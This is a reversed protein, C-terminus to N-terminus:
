IDHMIYSTPEFSVGKPIKRPSFTSAMLLLGWPRQPLYEVSAGVSTTGWYRQEELWQVMPDEVHESFLRSAARPYCTLQGLHAMYPCTNVRSMVDRVLLCLHNKTNGTRLDFSECLRQLIIVFDPDKLELFFSIFLLKQDQKSTLKVQVSINWPTVSKWKWKVLGNNQVALQRSITHRARRWTIAVFTWIRCCRWLRSEDSCVDYVCFYIYNSM